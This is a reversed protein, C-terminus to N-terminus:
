EEAWLPDRRYRELPDEGNKSSFLSEIASVGKELLSGVNVGIMPQVAGPPRSGDLSAGSRGKAGLEFPLWLYHTRQFQLLPGSGSSGTGAHALQIAQDAQNIPLRREMEFHFVAKVRYEKPQNTFLGRALAKRLMRHVYVRLFRNTSKVRSGGEIWRGEGSFSLDAHVVGEIDKEIFEAPYGLAYEIVEYLRSQAGILRASRAFARGGEDGDGFGEAVASAGVEGASFGFRNPQGSLASFPLGNRKTSTREIRAGAQASTGGRRSSTGTRKLVPLPVAVVEIPIPVPSFLPVRVSQGM